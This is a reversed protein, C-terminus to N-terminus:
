TGDVGCSIVPSEAWTGRFREQRILRTNVLRLGVGVQPPLYPLHSADVLTSRPRVSAVVQVVPGARLFVARGAVLHAGGLPRARHLVRPLLEGDDLRPNALPHRRNGSCLARARRASFRARPASAPRAQGVPVRVVVARADVACRSGRKPARVISFSVRASTILQSSSGSSSSAIPGSGPPVEQVQHAPEEGPCDLTAEGVTLGTFIIGCPFRGLGCRWRSTGQSSSSAFTGCEHLFEPRDDAQHEIEAVPRAERVPSAAPRRM